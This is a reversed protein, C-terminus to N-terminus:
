QLFIESIISSSPTGMALGDTQTYITKNFTFYNQQNIIDYWNLIEQIENPQVLNNILARRLINKAESIPINTYM